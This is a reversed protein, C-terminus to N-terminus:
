QIHGTQQIADEAGPLSIKDLANFLHMIGASGVGNQADFINGADLSDIRTRIRQISPNARYPVQSEAMEQFTSEADTLRAQQAQIYQRVIYVGVMVVLAAAVGAAVSMIRYYVRRAARWRVARRQQVVADHVAQQVQQRMREMTVQDIQSAIPPLTQLVKFHALAQDYELMAAPYTEVHERLIARAESGLEESVDLLCAQSLKLQKM